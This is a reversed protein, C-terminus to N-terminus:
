APGYVSREWIEVLADILESDDRGAERAVQQYCAREVMWTLAFAKGAARGPDEGEEVLRAETATVFRAVLSRWFEGVKEDYTSAEVVARLLDAHERYTSLIDTMAGRLERRGDDGSWWRDAEAYLVSVVSETLRMLLDRKDRFYLYFATRSRGAAAAIREVSLDAYPIGEALLRETGVLFATEAESRREGARTGSDLVAMAAM